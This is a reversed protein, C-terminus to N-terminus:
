SKSVCMRAHKLGLRGGPIHSVFCKKVAMFSLACKSNYGDMTDDRNDNSMGGDSDDAGSRGGHGKM